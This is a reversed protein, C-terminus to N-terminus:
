WRTLDAEIGAVGRGGVSKLAAAQESKAPRVQSVDMDGVVIGFTKSNQQRIGLM